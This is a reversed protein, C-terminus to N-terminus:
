QENIVEGYFQVVGNKIRCKLAVLEGGDARIFKLSETAKGVFKTLFAEDLKWEQAAAGNYNAGILGSGAKLPALQGGDATVIKNAKIFNSPELVAGNADVSVARIKAGGDSQWQLTRGGSTRVSLTYWQSDDANLFQIDGNHFRYTANEPEVVTKLDEVSVFKLAGDFDAGSHLLRCLEAYTMKRDEAVNGIVFVDDPLIPNNSNVSDNDTFRKGAM